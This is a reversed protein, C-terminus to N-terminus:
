LFRRLIADPLFHRNRRLFQELEIMDDLRMETYSEKGNFAGGYWEKYHHLTEAIGRLYIRESAEGGHVWWNWIDRLRKDLEDDYTNYLSIIDELSAVQSQWGESQIIHAYRALRDYFIEVGPVIEVRPEWETTWGRPSAVSGSRVLLKIDHLMELVELQYEEQIIIVEVEPEEIDIDRQSWIALLTLLVFGTICLITKMKKSKM